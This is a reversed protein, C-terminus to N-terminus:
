GWIGQQACTASVRRQQRGEDNMVILSPRPEVLDPGGLALEVQAARSEQANHHRLHRDLRPEPDPGIGLLEVDIQARVM